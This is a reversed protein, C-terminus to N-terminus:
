SLHEESHTCGPFSPFFRNPTWGLEKMGAESSYYSGAIWEKLDEFSERTARNEPSTSVATLLSHRQSMSLGQFSNGFQREGETEMASLSALFKQQRAPSDVSLLLDIFRNVLAATSGPVIAESFSQLAENQEPSLFLPKWNASALDIDGHSLLPTENLLHGWVPHLGGLSWAGTVGLLRRAVERRSLLERKFSSGQPNLGGLSLGGNEAL